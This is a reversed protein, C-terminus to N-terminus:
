SKSVYAGRLYLSVQPCCPFGEPVLPSVSRFHFAGPLESPWTTRSCRLTLGLVGPGSLRVLLGAAGARVGVARGAGPPEALRRAAEKRDLGM